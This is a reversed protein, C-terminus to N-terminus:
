IIYDLFQSDSMVLQYWEVGHAFRSETFSETL